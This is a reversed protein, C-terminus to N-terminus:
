VNYVDPKYLSLNAKLFEITENLGKTLDYAPKWDSGQTLKDNECFLREVESKDPRVRVTDTVINVKENMLEAIKSALDGVSIEDKM